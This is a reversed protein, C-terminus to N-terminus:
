LRELLSEAEEPHLLRLLELGERGEAFLAGYRRRQQWHARFFWVFLADSGVFQGRLTETNGNWLIERTALRRFSRRILRWLKTGVSYDLWILTDARSLISAQVQRTYNGDAVWREAGLAAAVADAFDPNPTWNELHHLADLEVFTAELKDALRRGLTTKGAGSTGIILVRQM